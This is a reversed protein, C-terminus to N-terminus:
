KERFGISLLLKVAKEIQQEKTNKSGMVPVLSLDILEEDTIEEKNRIKTEINNLIIDGNEDIMSYLDFKFNITDGIIHTIKKRKEATSIVILKIEKDTKKKFNVMSFYALFRNKDNLDVITSQFEIILIMDDLEIIIDAILISVDIFRIETPNLKKKKSKINIRKLFVEVEEETVNKFVIDENNKTMYDRKKIM